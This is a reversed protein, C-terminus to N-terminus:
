GLTVLDMAVPPDDISGVLVETMDRYLSGIKKTALALGDVCWVNVRTIEYDDDIGGFDANRALFIQLFRVHAERPIHAPMLRLIERRTTLTMRLKQDLSSNAAHNRVVAQPTRNIAFELNIAAILVRM